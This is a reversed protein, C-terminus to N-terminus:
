NEVCIIGEETSIVKGDIIELEKPVVPEGDKTCVIDIIPEVSTANNFSDICLETCAMRNAETRFNTTCRMLCSEFDSTPHGPDVFIFMAAGAIFMTMLILTVALWEDM